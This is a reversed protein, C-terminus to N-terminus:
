LNIPLTITLEETAGIPLVRIRIPLEHRGQARNIPAFAVETIEAIRQEQDLAERIYIEALAQMRVNNSEGVILYLRSGYSPHGLPTLEGQRTLLRNVIAQALNARGNVVQLDRQLTARLDVYDRDSTQAEFDRNSLRIDTYLQEDAM